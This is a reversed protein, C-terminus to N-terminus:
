RGIQIDGLGFAKLLFVCLAIVVLVVLVTRIPPSMPIYTTVLWVILGLV